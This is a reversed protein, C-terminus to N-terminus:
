FQSLTRTRCQALAAPGRRRPSRTISGGHRDVEGIADALADVQQTIKQRIEVLEPQDSLEDIRGDRRFQGRHLSM